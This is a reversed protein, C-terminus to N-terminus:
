QKKGKTSLDLKISDGTGKFFPVVIFALLNEQKKKTQANLDDGPFYKIICAL